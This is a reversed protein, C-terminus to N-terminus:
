DGIPGPADIEAADAALFSSGSSNSGFLRGIEQPPDTASILALGDESVTFETPPLHTQPDILIEFLSGDWRGGQIHVLATDTM